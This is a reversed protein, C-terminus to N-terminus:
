GARATGIRNLMTLFRSLDDSAFSDRNAILVAEAKLVLAVPKLKRRGLDRKFGNAVLAIDAKEPLYAAAAGWVPFVQFCRLRTEFVFAEALNAYESVIRITRESSAQQIEQLSLLGSSASTVAWLEHCGVGLARVKVVSSKPFRVMLEDVWDLGCIGLDYNGIAVQIPIDKEQFVKASLDPFEPAKPRYSRSGEEYNELAMGREGLFNAIEGQLRGKPLALKIM